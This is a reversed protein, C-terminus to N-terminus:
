EQKDLTNKVPDGGLLIIQRQLLAVHYEAKLRLKREAEADAEAEDKKTEATETRTM